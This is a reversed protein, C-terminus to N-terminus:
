VTYCHFNFREKLRQNSRISFQPIKDTSTYSITCPTRFDTNRNIRHRWYFTTLKILCRTFSRKSKCTIERRFKSELNNTNRTLPGILPSSNITINILRTQFIIATFTRIKFNRRCAVISNVKITIRVSQCESGKVLLRSFVRLHHNCTVKSIPSISSHAHRWYISIRTSTWM